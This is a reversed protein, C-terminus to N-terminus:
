IVMYEFHSILNCSRIFTKTDYSTIDKTNCKIVNNGDFYIINKIGSKKMFWICTNCPKTNKLNCDKNVRYVYIDCEKNTKKEMNICCKVESHTSIFCNYGKYVNRYENYGTSIVKGRRVAIAAHKIKMDSKNSQILAINAFRYYRNEDSNSIKNYSNSTM